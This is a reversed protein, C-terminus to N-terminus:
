FPRGHSQIRQCQIVHTINGTGQHGADDPPTVQLRPGRALPERRPPESIWPNLALPNWWSRRRGPEGQIGVAKMGVPTVKAPGFHFGFPYSRAEMTDRVLPEGMDDLPERTRASRSPIPNHLKDALRQVGSPWEKTPAFSDPLRHREQRRRRRRFFLLIALALLGVTVATTMLKVLLFLLYTLKCITGLAIAAKHGGKLDSRGGDVNAIPTPYLPTRTAATAPRTTTFFSSTPIGQPAAASQTTTDSSVTQIPRPTTPVLTSTPSTSQPQSQPQSTSAPRTTEVSTTTTKPSGGVPSRAKTISSTPLIATESAPPGAPQQKIPTTESSGSPQSAIASPADEITTTTTASTSSSTTTSTTPAESSSAIPTPITSTPLTTEESETTAPESPLPSVPLVETPVTDPPGKSKGDPGPPGKDKPGKILGGIFDKGAKGLEEPIDLLGEALDKPKPFKPLEDRPFWM